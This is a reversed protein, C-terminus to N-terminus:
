KNKGKIKKRNNGFKEKFQEVSMSGFPLPKESIVNQWCSFSEGNECVQYMGDNLYWNGGFMNNIKVALRAMLPRRNLYEMSIFCESSPFDELQKELMLMAPSEEGPIVPNTVGPKRIFNFMRSLLRYGGFVDMVCSFAIIENNHLTIYWQCYKKNNGRHELIEPFWDRNKDKSTKSLNEIIKYFRESNHKEVREVILETPYTM